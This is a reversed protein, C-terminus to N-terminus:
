RSAVFFLRRFPFLIKGDNRRPYAQTYAVLLRAEFSQRQEENELAELYPRLGTGRFWNVIAQPNDMIHYYETEWIELRTCLPRLVDYYFEPPHKTLANQANDFRDRWVPDAAIEQVANRLPSDNQSPMQVALVGGDAVQTLLHPLLEAHNPLWHLTANSFVIDCPTDAKWSAIDALQWRDQPYKASATAIMEPSNDLGVIRADQWRQRLIATSNGPGCGLDIITQPSDLPIRAVLDISPQTRENAFTLYLQSDWTPM